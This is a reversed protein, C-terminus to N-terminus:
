GPSPCDWQPREGVFGEIVERWGSRHVEELAQVNCKRLRHRPRLTAFVCCWVESRLNNPKGGVWCTPWRARGGRTAPPSLLIAGFYM